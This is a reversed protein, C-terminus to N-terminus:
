LQFAGFDEKGLKLRHKRDKNESFDVIDLYIEANSFDFSIRKGAQDAIVEKTTENLWQRVFLHIQKTGRPFPGKKTNESDIELEDKLLNEQYKIRGSVSNFDIPFVSGNVLTFRFRLYPTGDNELLRVQRESIILVENLNDEDSRAVTRLYNDRKKSSSKIDQIQDPKHSKEWMLKFSTYLRNFEEEQLAKEIRIAPKDKAEYGPLVLEVHAWGDKSDPNCFLIGMGIFDGFWRVQINNRQAQETTIKIQDPQFFPNPELDKLLNLYHAEPEPLIIRKMKKINDSDSFLGQGRLFYGHLENNGSFIERIPFRNHLTDRDKFFEVTPRFYRWVLIGLWGFAAPMFIYSSLFSFIKHEQAIELPTKTTFFSWLFPGWQNIFGLIILVSGQATLKNRTMATGWTHISVPM